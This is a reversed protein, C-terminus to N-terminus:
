RPRARLSKSPTRRRRCRFGRRAPMDALSAGPARSRAEGRKTSCLAARQKRGVRPRRAAGPAAASRSARARAIACTKSTLRMAEFLPAGRAGASTCRQRARPQTSRPTCWFQEATGPRPWDARARPHRPMDVPTRQGDRQPAETPRARVEARSVPPAQQTRSKSMLGATCSACSIAVTENHGVTLMVALRHKGRLEVPQHCVLLHPVATGRGGQRHWWSSANKEDNPLQRAGSRARGWEGAATPPVPHSRVGASAPENAAM